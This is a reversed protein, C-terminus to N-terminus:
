ETASDSARDEKPRGTSRYSSPARPSYIRAADDLILGGSETIVAEQAQGKGDVSCELGVRGTLGQEKALPPYYDHGPPLLTPGWATSDAGSTVAQICGSRAFAAALAVVHAGGLTGLLFRM